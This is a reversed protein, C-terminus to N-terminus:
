PLTPCASRAVSVAFWGKRSLNERLKVGKRKSGKILGKKKFITSVFIPGTSIFTVSDSVPIRCSECNNLLQMTGTLYPWNDLLEDRKITREYGSSVKSGHRSLFSVSVTAFREKIAGSGPPAKKSDAISISMMQRPKTRVEEQVKANM